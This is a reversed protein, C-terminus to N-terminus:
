INELDVGEQNDGLNLDDGLDDNGEVGEMEQNQDDIDINNETPNDAM